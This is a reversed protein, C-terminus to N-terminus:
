GDTLDTQHQIGSLIKVLKAKRLYLHVSIANVFDDDCKQYVVEKFIHHLALNLKSKSHKSSRFSM